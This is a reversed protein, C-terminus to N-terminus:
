QVRLQPGNVRELDLLWRKMNVGGSGGYGRLDGNAGIVRHCPVVISVPNARMAQGVARASGPREIQKAVWSYSRTEGYPISRVVEWVETQFPTGEVDLADPFSPNEGLFYGELRNVLDRLAATSADSEVCQEQVELQDLIELPSEQPMTVRRVGKSSALIGM